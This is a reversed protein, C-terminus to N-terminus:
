QVNIKDASAVVIYGKANITTYMCTAFSIRYVLPLNSLYPFSGINWGQYFVGNIVINPIHGHCVVLDALSLIALVKYM